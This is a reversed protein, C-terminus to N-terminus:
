SKKRKKLMLVTAGMLGGVVGAGIGSNWSSKRPVWESGPNFQYTDAIKTFAPLNETVTDPSCYFNLQIIEDAGPYIFCIGKLPGAPTKLDLQFTVRQRTPDYRPAAHSVVDVGSKKLYSKADAAETDLKAGLAKELDAVSANRFPIPTRQVVLYPQIADTSALRWGYLFEFAPASPPRPLRNLEGIEASTMPVADEPLTIQWAPGQFPGAAVLALLFLAFWRRSATANFTMGRLYLCTVAVAVHPPFHLTGRPVNVKVGTPRPTLAAKAVNNWTSCHCFNVGEAPM